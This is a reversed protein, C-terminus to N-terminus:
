RRVCRGILSVLSLACSLVVACRLEAMRAYGCNRAAKIKGSGFNGHQLSRCYSRKGILSSGRENGEPEGVAAAIIIIACQM